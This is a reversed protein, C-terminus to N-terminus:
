EPLVASVDASLEAFFARCIFKVSPCRERIREWQMNSGYAFYLM